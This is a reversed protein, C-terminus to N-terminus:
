YKIHFVNYALYYINFVKFIYVRFTGRPPCGTEAGPDGPAPQMRDSRSSHTDPHRKNRRAPRAHRDENKVSFIESVVISNNVIPLRYSLPRASDIASTVSSTVHGASTMASIDVAPTGRPRACSNGDRTPQNTRKM